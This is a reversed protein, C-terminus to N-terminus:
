HSQSQVKADQILQKQKKRYERMRLKQKERIDPNNQYQNRSKDAREKKLIKSEETNSNYKTHYYELQKEKRNMYTKHLNNYKNEFYGEVMENLRSHTIIGMDVLNDWNDILFSTQSSSIM